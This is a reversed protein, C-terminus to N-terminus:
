PEIRRIHELQAPKTSAAPVTMVQDHRVSTLCCRIPEPQLHWVDRGASYDRKVIKARGLVEVVRAAQGMPMLYDEYGITVVALQVAARSM